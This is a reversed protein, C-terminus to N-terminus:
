PHIAQRVIGQQASTTVSFSQSVVHWGGAHHWAIPTAYSRVIYDISQGTVKWVLLDEGELRGSGHPAVTFDSGPDHREGRLSGSTTFDERGVIADMVAQRAAYSRPKSQLRKTM